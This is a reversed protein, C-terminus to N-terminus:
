FGEGLVLFDASALTVYGESFQTRSETYQRQHQEIGADLENFLSLM